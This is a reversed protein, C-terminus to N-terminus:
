GRGVAARRSAPRGAPRGAQPSVTRWDVRSLAVGGEHYARLLPMGGRSVIAAAHILFAIAVDVDADFDEAMSAADQFDDDSVLPLLDRLLTMFGAGLRGSRSTSLRAQEYADPRLEPRGSLVALGDASVSLFDRRERPRQGAVSGALEAWLELEPQQLRRLRDDQTLAFGLAEGELRGRLLTLFEPRSSM